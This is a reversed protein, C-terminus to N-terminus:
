KKDANPRYPRPQNTTPKHSSPKHVGPKYTNRRGTGYRYMGFRNVGFGSRGGIVWQPAITQELAVSQEELLEVKRREIAIAQYERNAKEQQQREAEAILARQESLETSRRIREQAEIQYEIPADPVNKLTRITQDICPTDQYTIKNNVNKCVFIEAHAQLPLALASIMLLLKM